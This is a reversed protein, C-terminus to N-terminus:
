IHGALYSIDNLIRQKMDVSYTAARRGGSVFAVTKRKGTHSAKPKRTFFLLNMLSNKRTAIINDM